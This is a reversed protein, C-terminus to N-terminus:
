KSQGMLFSSHTFYLKILCILNCWFHHIMFNRKLIVIAYSRKFKLWDGRLSFQRWTYLSRASQMLMLCSPLQQHCNAVPQSWCPDTVYLCGLDQRSHSHPGKQCPRTMALSFCRSGGYQKSEWVGFFPGDCLLSWSNGLGRLRLDPIIQQMQCPKPSGIWCFVKWSLDRLYYIPSQSVQVGFKQNKGRHIGFQITSEIFASVWSRDWLKQTSVVVKWLGNLGRGYMHPGWPSNTSLQQSSTHHITHHSPRVFM